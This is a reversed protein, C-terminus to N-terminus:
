NIETSSYQEILLVVVGGKIDTRHMVNSTAYYVKLLNWNVTKGFQGRLVVSYLDSHFTEACFVGNYPNLISQLLFNLKVVHWTKFSIHIYIYIKYKKLM